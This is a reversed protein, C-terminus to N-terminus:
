RTTADNNIAKEDNKANLAFKKLINKKNKSLAHM